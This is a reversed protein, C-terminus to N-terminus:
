QQLRSMSLNVAMGLIRGPVRTSRAREAIPIATRRPEGFGLMLETSASLRVNSSAFDIAYEALTLPV